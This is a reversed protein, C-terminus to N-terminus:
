KKELPFTLNKKWTPPSKTNNLYQIIKLSAQITQRMGGLDWDAHYEDNVTHYVTNWFETYNFKGDIEDEGASIWVAPIGM